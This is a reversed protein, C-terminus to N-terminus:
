AVVMPLGRYKDRLERTLEEIEREYQRIRAGYGSNTASATSKIQQSLGDMSIQQAAVGPGLILDGLVNLPGIAATMGVLHRVAPPISRFGATYDIQFVGPLYPLRGTLWPQILTAQQTNFVVGNVVSPIINMIGSDLDTVVWEPPFVVSVGSDPTPVVLRVQEVSLVPIWDLTQYMLISFDNRRYGHLETTQDLRGPDLVASNITRRRISLGLRAEVRDVAASIYHAFWADPIPQGTTPNTLNLGLLYNEKLEGVTLVDFAREADGRQERSANSEVGTVSHGYRIHYWDTGAGERHSFTYITQDPRLPVRPYVAGGPGTVEAWPGAAGTTSRYLRIENYYRLVETLDDVIFHLTVPDSM